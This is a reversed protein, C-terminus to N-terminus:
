RREVKIQHEYSFTLSNPELEIWQTESGRVGTVPNAGFLRVEAVLDVERLQQLAAFVEGQQVPRGFPWGTGDPGGSLPNLLQHLTTMAQERVKDVDSYPMALLRAVVTVGKYLPPEVVVRVGAVRVEELRKVLKDVTDQRPVLDEFQLRGMPNPVSPVVLLRLGGEDDHDPICRVRSLEPAAATAIAEYDETTVARDRSRLTQPGRAKAQEVTEGDVGGQAAVLNEVASIFPIASTLTQIASRVVNGRRGGGTAYRAMRVTAGAEPVAGYQRTSGDRERLLPGFEVVGGSADLVFHKDRPGSDAFHEVREWTVWGGDSAVQLLVDGADVLVPTHGVRFRQGAVGEAEGLTEDCVNRAHVAGVTGGVTGVEIGRLVPSASYAPQESECEIVRARLWGGREGDFVGVDHNDPLHVIVTGSRNLGGTDDGTVLCEVWSGGDWAEWLLPPRAPDVGVGETTCVVSLRVACSPAPETLAVLLEDGPAPRASFVACQEGVRLAALREVSEEAGSAKTRLSKLECPLIDLTGTTAFLIQDDPGSVLTGVATGEDIRLPATAPASLWFTVPVRAAVPPYLRVGILELFKVYLREPLRNLRYLLVDTMYAFTEILTVGPDSVNHDTWEPCRRMVLRKADDVLEQFRRDDLDPVPLTM